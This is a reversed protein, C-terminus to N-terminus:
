KNYILIILCNRVFLTITKYFGAVQVTGLCYKGKVQGWKPYVPSEISLCQDFNGLNSAYGRLLGAPIKGTADFM